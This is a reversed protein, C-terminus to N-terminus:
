FGSNVVDMIALRIAMKDPHYYGADQLIDAVTRQSLSTYAASAVGIDPFAICYWDTKAIIINWEKMFGFGCDQEISIQRVNRFKSISYRYEVKEGDYRFCITKKEM